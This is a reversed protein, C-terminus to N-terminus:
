GDIVATELNRLGNLPSFDTVMNYGMYLEELSTLDALPSIDTLGCNALCLLRIKSMGRLAEVSYIQCNNFGVETLGKNKAIYSIDTVYTDCLWIKELTSFNRFVSIDSIPNNNMVVIKLNPLESMFSIDSIWNDTADIEELSPISRLVSIDTLNNGSLEVRTLNTLYKIDAIDRDNLGRNSLDIFTTSVPYTEGAIEVEQRAGSNSSTNQGSVSDYDAMAMIRESLEDYSTSQLAGSASFDFSLGDYSFKGSVSTNFVGYKSFDGVIVEARDFDDEYTAVTVGENTELDLYSFMIGMKEGFQSLKYKTNASPCDPYEETVFLAMVGYLKNGKRGAFAAVYGEAGLESTYDYSYGCVSLPITEGNVSM